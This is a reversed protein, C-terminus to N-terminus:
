IDSTRSVMNFEKMQALINSQKASNARSPSSKSGFAKPEQAGKPSTLQPSAFSQPSRHQSSRQNKTSHINTRSGSERFKDTSQMSLSMMSKGKSKEFEELLQLKNAEMEKRMKQRTEM